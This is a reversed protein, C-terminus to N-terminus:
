GLRLRYLHDSYLQGEILVSDKLTGMREFGYRKYFAIARANDVDVQLELQVVGVARAEACVGDMMARALGRGQHAATVFFPGVEARHRTRAMAQRRFGCFGVMEAGGFVGRLTGAELIERQRAASTAVAEEHSLLFGIPFDRTGELLLAHWAAANEPTLVRYSFAGAMESCHPWPLCEM